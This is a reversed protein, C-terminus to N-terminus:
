YTHGSHVVMSAVFIQFAALVCNLSADNKKFTIYIRCSIPEVQNIVKKSPCGQLLALCILCKPPENSWLNIGREQIGSLKSQPTIKNFNEISTHINALYQFVGFGEFLGAPRIRERLTM